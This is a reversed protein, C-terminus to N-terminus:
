GRLERLSFLINVRNYYRDAWTFTVANSNASDTAPLWTHQPDTTLSTTLPRSSNVEIQGLMDVLGVARAKAYNGVDDKVQLM